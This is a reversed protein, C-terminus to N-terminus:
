ASGEDAKWPQLVARGDLIEDGRILLSLMADGGGPIKTVGTDAEGKSRAKRM